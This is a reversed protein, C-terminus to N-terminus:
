DRLVKFALNGDVGPALALRLWLVCLPELLRASALPGADAVDFGLIRTLGAVVSKAEADDGCLFMSAQQGQFTPRAYRNAGLSNFCKVVRARKAWAAVQEGGSTNFGVVLEFTTPDIPNTCDILIKGSLDGADAIAEQTASWPTALVVVDGFEAAQALTGHDGRGESEIVLKHIKDSHPNRSGYMVEHGKAAWLQGLTGGVHGAGIIGIRLM